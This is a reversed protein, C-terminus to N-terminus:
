GVRCPTPIPIPHVSIPRASQGSVSRATARMFPPLTASGGGSRARREEVASLDSRSLPCIVGGGRLGQQCAGAEVVFPVPKSTPNPGHRAPQQQENPTTALAPSSNRKIQVTREPEAPDYHICHLWYHTYRLQSRLMVGCRTHRQIHTHIRTTNDTQWGGWGSSPSISMRQFSKDQGTRHQQLDRNNNIITTSNHM